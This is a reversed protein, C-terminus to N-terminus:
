NNIMSINTQLCKTAGNNLNITLHIIVNSIFYIRNNLICVNCIHQQVYKSQSDIGWLIATVYAFICGLAILYNMRPSSM